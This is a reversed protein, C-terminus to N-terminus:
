CDLQEIQLPVHWTRPALPVQLHDDLHSFGSPEDVPM